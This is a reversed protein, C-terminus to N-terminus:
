GVLARPIREGEASLCRSEEEEEEEERREKWGQAALVGCHTRETSVPSLSLLLRIPSSEPTGGPQHIDEDPPLNNSCSIAPSM